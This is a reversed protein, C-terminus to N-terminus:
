FLTRDYLVEPIIGDVFRPTPTIPTYPVFLEVAVYSQGDRLGSALYPVAVSDPLGILSRSDFGSSTVQTQVRPVGGQVVVRSVIAGGGTGLGSAFQNNRTADLAEALTAGRSAINAGERTLSSMIHRTELLRSVEIIGLGLILLFPLCIAIEALAQGRRSRLRRVPGRPPSESSPSM